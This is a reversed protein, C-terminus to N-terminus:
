VGGDHLRVAQEETLGRAMIAALATARRSRRRGDAEATEQEVLPLAFAVSPDGMADQLVGALDELVPQVRSRLWLSRLERTSQASGTEAYVLGPVVGFAACVDRRVQDRLEVSSESPEPGIRAPRDSADQGRDWQAALVEGAGALNVREGISEEYGRKRTPNSRWPVKVGLLRSVPVRHEGILAAELTGALPALSPVEALVSRGRWPRDPSPSRRWHLVRGAPVTQLTQGDPVAVSLM